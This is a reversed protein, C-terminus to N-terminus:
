IRGSINYVFKSYKRCNDLVKRDSLRYLVSQAKKQKIVQPLCRLASFLARWELFNPILIKPLVMAALHFLLLRPDSINKWTCLYQNRRYTDFAAPRPFYKGITQNHQHHVTSRPEYLIKWGRKQARYSLDTEEYYFPSFLEDMGGLEFYKNRDVMFAAGSVSFVEFSRDPLKLKQASMFEASIVGGKFSGFIVSENLFNQSPRLVKPSVGFLEEPGFAAVLPPLFGPLVRIDNNLFFLLEKTAKEAGLNCARSFGLPNKTAILKIQPFAAKIYVPSQDISGNDVVLLEIDADAPLCSFLSPLNAQLQELGNHSPIIISVSKEM